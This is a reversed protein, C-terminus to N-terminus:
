ELMEQKLAKSKSSNNKKVRPQKDSESDHQSNYDSNRKLEALSRDVKKIFDAHIQADM